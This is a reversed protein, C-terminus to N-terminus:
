FYKKFELSISSFIINLFLRAITSKKKFLKSLYFSVIDNLDLLNFFLMNKFEIEAGDISLLNGYLEEWNFKNNDYLNFLNFKKIPIYHLKLKIDSIKVCRFKKIEKNKENKFVIDDKINISMEELDLNNDKSFGFFNKLFDFTNQNLNFDIPEIDLVIDDENVILNKYFNFSNFEKMEFNLFFNENQFTSRLIYKETTFKSKLSDDILIDHIKLNLQFKLENKEENSIIQFIINNLLIDISQSHDRKQNLDSGNYLKLEVNVNDSLIFVFEPFSEKNSHFKFKENKPLKKSKKNKLYNENLKFNELIIKNDIKKFEEKNEYNNEYFNELINFKNKQFLNLEYEDNNNNENKNNEDIININLYYQLIDNLKLFSDSCIEFKLNANLIQILIKPQNQYFQENSNNLLEVKINFNLIKLIEFFGIKKLDRYIFM